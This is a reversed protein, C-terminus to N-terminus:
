ENIFREIDAIEKIIDESLNICGDDCILIDDEIRIGIGLEPIYLGPEVTIVNGKELKRNYMALDHTDLGLHHSINHYYYKDIDKADKIFNIEMLGDALLVKAYEQLESISIGPKALSIIKKNCYLVIEYIEKQLPSFKGKHPYTRSIDSNYFNICAGLDLLILDEDNFHQNNKDYHLTTANKGSAAITSFALKADFENFVHSEFLTQCEREGKTNKINKLLHELGSRTAKLSNKIVAIEDDDKIMRLSVIDDHIDEINIKNNFSLVLKEIRQGQNVEGLFDSKELDLYVNDCNHLMECLDDEFCDINRIDDIMSIKQADAFTLGEGIFKKMIEDRQSLYIIEKGKYIILYVNSFDIGTFYYFDRNVEFPYCEDASKKQEYGSFLIIIGDDKNSSLLHRRKMYQM